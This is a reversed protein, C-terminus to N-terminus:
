TLFVLLYLINLFSFFGLRCSPSCRQRTIVSAVSNNALSRSHIEGDFRMKNGSFFPLSTAPTLYFLSVFRNVFSFCAGLLNLFSFSFSNFLDYDHLPLQLFAVNLFLMYLHCKVFMMIITSADFIFSLM